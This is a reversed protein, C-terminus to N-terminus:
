VLFHFDAATLHTVGLVTVSDSADFHIVSSDAIHDNNTDVTQIHLDRFFHESFADATRVKCRL